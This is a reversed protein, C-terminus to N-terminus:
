LMLDQTSRSTMAIAHPMGSYSDRVTHAFTEGKASVRKPDSASKSVIIIDTSCQQRPGTPPPLGDGERDTKKHSRKRRMNAKVCIECFPNFPYHSCLHRLSSAEEILARKSKSRVFLYPCTPVDEVAEDEVPESPVSMPINLDEDPGQVYDEGEPVELEM